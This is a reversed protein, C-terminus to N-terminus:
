KDADCKWATNDNCYKNKRDFLAKEIEHKKFEREIYPYLRIDKHDVRAYLSTVLPVSFFLGILIIILSKRM